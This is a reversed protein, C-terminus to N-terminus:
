KQIPLSFAQIFFELQVPELDPLTAQGRQSSHREFWAPALRGEWGRSKREQVMVAFSGNSNPAMVM